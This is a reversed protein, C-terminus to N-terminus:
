QRSFIKAPKEHVINEDALIKVINWMTGKITIKAM